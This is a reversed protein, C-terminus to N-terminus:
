HATSQMPATFLTIFMFNLTKNGLFKGCKRSPNERLTGNNGRHKM